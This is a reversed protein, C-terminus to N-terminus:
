KGDGATSLDLVGRVVPAGGAERGVVRRQAVLVAVMARGIARRDGRRERRVAQRERLQARCLLPEGRKVPGDGGHAGDAIPVDVRDVLLRARMRDGVRARIARRAGRAAPRPARQWTKRGHGAHRRRHGAGRGGSSRVVRSEFRRPRNGLRRLRIGRSRLPIGRSTGRSMGRSTGRSAVRPQVARPPGSLRRPSRRPLM